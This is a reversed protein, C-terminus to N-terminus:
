KQSNKNNITISRIIQLSKNLSKTAQLNDNIILCKTLLNEEIKCKKLNRRVDANAKVGGETRLRGSKAVM